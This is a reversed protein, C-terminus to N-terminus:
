ITLGRDVLAQYVLVRLERRLTYTSSPTLQTLFMATIDEMPDVWFVTSAIGGWSFEGV